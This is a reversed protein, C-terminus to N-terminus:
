FRSIRRNRCLHWNKSFKPALSEDSSFAGLQYPFDFCNTNSLLSISRLPHRGMMSGRHITLPKTRLFFHTQRCSPIARLLHPLNLPFPPFYINNNRGSSRLKFHQRSQDLLLSNVPGLYRNEVEVFIHTKRDLM